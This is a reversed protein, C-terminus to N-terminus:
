GGVFGRLGMQALFLREECSFWPSLGMGNRWGVVVEGGVVVVSLLWGLGDVTDVVVFM